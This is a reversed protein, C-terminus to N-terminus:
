IDLMKACTNKDKICGCPHVGDQVGNDISHAKEIATAVIMAFILAGRIVTAVVPTIAATSFTPIMVVVVPTVSFTAEMGVMPYIM